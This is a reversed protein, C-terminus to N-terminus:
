YKAIYAMCFSVIDISGVGTVNTLHCEFGMGKANAFPNTADVASLTNTLRYVDDIALGNATTVAVQGTVQTSTKLLSSNNGPNEWFIYDVTWDWTDLNTQGVVLAGEFILDVDQTEDWDAPMVIGISAIEEAATFRLTPIAPTTGQTQDTPATVGKRFNEVPYILQRRLSENTLVQGFKSM